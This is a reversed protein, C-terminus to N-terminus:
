FKLHLEIIHNIINENKFWTTCFTGRSNRSCQCDSGCNKHDGFAVFELRGKNNKKWREKLKKKKGNKSLISCSWCGTKISGKEDKQIKVKHKYHNSLRRPTEMSTRGCRSEDWSLVKRKQQRARTCNTHKETKRNEWLEVPTAPEMFSFVRFSIHGEREGQRPLYSMLM